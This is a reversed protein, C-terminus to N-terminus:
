SNGGKKQKDLYKKSIIVVRKCIEINFEGIHCDNYDIELRKSLWLYAKKRTKKGNRWIPDFAAHSERRHNRLDANALSGKPEDGVFGQRMNPKHCGVYAKCPHCSWFQLDFLDSRHPYIVRGSVLLANNNCYPCKVPKLPM